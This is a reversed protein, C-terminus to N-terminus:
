ARTTTREVIARLAANFPAPAELMPFHGVGDMAHPRLRALAIEHAPSALLASNITEVACALLPWRAEVDWELLAALAALKDDIPAASMEAAIWRVLNPDAAPATLRDVMRTMTGSFDAAFSECRTRIETPSLRRYFRDDTFTDVGLLLRCRSGLRLATELGVAGGMSHGILVVDDAGAAAIVTEVDRAFAAMSWASRAAAPQSRGHGPLDPVIIRFADALAFQERWFAHHCSWGHIFVLATGGTGASAYAIPIGDFSACTAHALTVAGHADV